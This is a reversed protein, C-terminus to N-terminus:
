AHPADHERLWASVLAVYRDHDDLFCMHRCGPMLEWRSGPIGDAMQKAVRPTCLDETGSIILAPTHIEELRSSYDWTQFVGTAKLENDGQTALYSERGARKPRRVCEPDSPSAPDSCYLRMFRAEVARFAPDDYQGTAEARAVVDQDEKLFFHRLIRHHEEAWLASSALTSSLVVSRVGQPRYDVLYEIALMGGWLQGLLHCADLGLHERLAILERDWTGLDRWLDDKGAMADDWSLGCGLQDYMVLTRGDLDALGDLVEFYNHTSGPGGHLLVLPARGPAPHDPRVVRYYTSFGLYPMRGETVHM